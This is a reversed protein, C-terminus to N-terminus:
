AKKIALKRLSMCIEKVTQSDSDKLGHKLITLLADGHSKIIISNLRKYDNNELYTLLLGSITSIVPHGFTAGEGKLDHSIKYMREYLMPNVEVCEGEPLKRICEALEQSIRMARDDFEAVYKAVIETAHEVRDEPIGGIGVKEKLRNPAFKINGGKKANIPKIDM